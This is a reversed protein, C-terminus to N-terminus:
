RGLRAELREYAAIAALTKLAAIRLEDIDEPRQRTFTAGGVARFQIGNAYVTTTAGNSTVWRQTSAEGIEDPPPLEVALLEVWGPGTVADIDRWVAGRAHRRDVICWQGTRPVEVATRDDTHRRIRV